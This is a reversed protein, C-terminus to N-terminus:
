LTDEETWHVYYYKGSVSFDMHQRLLRLWPTEKLTTAPYWHGDWYGEVKFEALILEKMESKMSQIM